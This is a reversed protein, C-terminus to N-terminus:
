HDGRDARRQDTRALLRTVLALLQTIPEAKELLVIDQEVPLVAEMQFRHLYASFVIVPITRTAPDSALLGIVTYGSDPLEIWLDLIVLDPQEGRIWEYADTGTTYCLVGYGAQLLLAELMSLIDPDDDIIAIRRRPM